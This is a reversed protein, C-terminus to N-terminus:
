DEGNIKIGQSYNIRLISDNSENLFAIYSDLIDESADVLRMWKNNIFIKSQLLDILMRKEKVGFKENIYEHVFMDVVYRFPEIFDYTLNFPNAEGKHHIGFQTILGRSALCRSIHSAIIKYGYNLGANIACNDERSFSKGFLAIFYVKASAAERNTDDNNLVESKYKKLYNLGANIACNDERSFSKGFLAIFYVKASAAERNTDDNNLVESKYKKLVEINEKSPSLFNLCEIESQIKEEVIYKWLKKKRTIKWNLQNNLQKFVLSHGNFPQFIGIPDNKNDCIIISINAEILAAILSSTIVAKQHTFIVTNIDTLPINLYEDNMTIRMRDLTLSVQCEAGIVVTKWGM